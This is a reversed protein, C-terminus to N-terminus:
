ESAQTQNKAGGDVGGYRPPLWVALTMVDEVGPITLGIECELGKEKEKRKKKGRKKQEMVPDPREMKRIDSSKM